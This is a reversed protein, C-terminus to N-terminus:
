FDTIGGARAAHGPLAGGELRRRGDDAAHASRWRQAGDPTPADARVITMEGDGETKSKWAWKAGVGSDAGSYVIQMAPDRQNWVAWRSWAKPAVVLAQLAQPPAHIVISREVMVQGPLLLGGGFVLVVLVALIGLLWKLFTM